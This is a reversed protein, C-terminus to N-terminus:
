TKWIQRSQEVCSTKPRTWEHRWQSSFTPSFTSLKVNNELQILQLTKDMFNPAPLTTKGAKEPTPLTLWALRILWQVQQPCDVMVEYPTASERSLYTKFIKYPLVFSDPGKLPRTKQIHPKWTTYHLKKRNLMLSILSVAIITLIRLLSLRWM